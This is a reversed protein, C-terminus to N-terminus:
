SSELIDILTRLRRFLEDYTLVTVGQVRERLLEFSERREQTTLDRGTDGVIVVCRPDGLTLRPIGDRLLAYFNTMLSQRYRVVQAVAGSLDPSFPFVGDRYEQGLLKTTPTKIEILVVGDTSETRALFDVLNGRQNAITKGGVYAKEGVVVIPYALIQSLVYAHRSLAEQWFDESPNSRNEEWYRLSNKMASLGLLAGVAPLEAAATSSLRAVEASANPSTAIWRVLKLLSSAAHDPHADLFAKLEEQGLALFGVLGAELRVFKARGRPVGQERQLGYLVRLETVFRLLEGSHLELRFGEGKKLSALTESRIPTWEERKGKRQYVFEGRVGAEPQSPNNVLVPLFVLRVRDTARLPIPNCEATDKSTSRTEIQEM